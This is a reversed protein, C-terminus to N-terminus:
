KSFTFNVKVGKQNRDLQIKGSFLNYSIMGMIDVCLIKEGSAEFM